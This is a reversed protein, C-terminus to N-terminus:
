GNTDNRAAIQKRAWGDIDCRVFRWQNGVEFAPIERQWAMRVVSKSSAWLLGAFDEITLHMESMDMSEM